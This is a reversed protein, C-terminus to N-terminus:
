FFVQPNIDLKDLTGKFYMFQVSFGSFDLMGVPNLFIKDAVSAVYYGKQPIVTGYAYIFKGSKKFDLLARRIEENTAFGNPDGDTEVFIGKVKEDDAARRIASTIQHLGPVFANGKRLVANLPNFSSQENFPRDLNLVLVTKNDVSINEKTNVLASIV